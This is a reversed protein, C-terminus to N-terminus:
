YAVTFQEREHAPEELEDVLAAAFDEFTIRSNGDEDILLQNGGIRYAGTREGPEIVIPPTMVTWNTDSTRAMDRAQRVVESEAKYEDPFDDTDLFETGSATQLSGAGGVLIVREPDSQRTVDLVNRIAQLYTDDGGEGRPSLSAVIVDQNRALQRVAGKESADAASVDIRREPELADTDRAVATVHHGRRVAETCVRSGIQGTAGLLLIHM